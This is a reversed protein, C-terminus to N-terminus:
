KCLHICTFVLIYELMKERTTVLSAPFLMITEGRKSLRRSIGKFAREAKDIGTKDKRTFTPTTPSNPLGYKPVPYLSNNGKDSIEIGSDNSGLPRVVPM